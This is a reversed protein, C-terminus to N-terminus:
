VFSKYDANSSRGKRTKRALYAVIKRLVFVEDDDDMYMNSLHMTHDDMMNRATMQSMIRISHPGTCKYHGSVKSMVRLLIKVQLPKRYKCIWYMGKRYSKTSLYNLRIDCEDVMDITDSLRM